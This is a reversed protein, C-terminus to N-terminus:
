PMSSLQTNNYGPKAAQFTMHVMASSFCIDFSRGLWHEKRLAIVSLVM